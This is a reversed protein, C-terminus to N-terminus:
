GGRLKARVPLESKFVTKIGDGMAREVFRIYDVMRKFGHPEMSAAHDSGFPQARDLTIHAEVISAGLVVAAVSAVIGPSHNSFGIPTHPYKKMLWKLCNLNLEEDSCPYTSTCHLLALPPKNSLTPRMVNVAHEIENITSMGTSLIIPRHYERAADLLKDNTLMASPIKIFPPDFQEMFHLSVEDWVSAGWMIRGHCHSAIASYEDLEFEIWDRYDIYSIYGWPTELKRDWQERPVCHMSFRKQFKVADAGALRAADILDLATQLDGQHNVGIEAVILCPEGDGVLRDGILIKSM